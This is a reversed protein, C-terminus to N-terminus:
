GFDFSCGFCKHFFQEPKPVLLFRTEHIEHVELHAYGYESNIIKM